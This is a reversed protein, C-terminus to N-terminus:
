AAGLIKSIALALTISYATDFWREDFRRLRKIEVALATSSPEGAACAIAAVVPANLVDNRYGAGAMAKLLLEKFENAATPFNDVWAAIQPGPPWDTDAQARLLDQRAEALREGLIEQGVPRTALTILGGEPVLGPVVGLVDILESILEMPQLRLPAREAFVSFATQVFEDIELDLGALQKKYMAAMQNAAQLWSQISVLHWSFPLEDLREWIVDFLLEDARFLLAPVISPNDAILAFLDLTASPLGRLSAFYQIVTEWEPSEPHEALDHLLQVLAERRQTVDSIRIAYGLKSIGDDVAGPPLEHEAVVWLLPRIRCWAGERGVILWPGPAM